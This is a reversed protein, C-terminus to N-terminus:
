RDPRRARGRGRPLCLPLLLVLLVAIAALGVASPSFRAALAAVVELLCGVALRVHRRCAMANAWSQGADTDASRNPARMASLGSTLDHLEGWTTATLAATSRANFDHDNLRRDAYAECLMGVAQDRDRDSARMRRVATV